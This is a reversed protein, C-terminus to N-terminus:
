QFLYLSGNCIHVSSLDTSSLCCCCTKAATPMTGLKWRTASYLTINKEYSAFIFLVIQLHIRDPLCGQRFVLTPFAMQVPMNLLFCREMTCTALLLYFRIIVTTTFTSAPYIGRLRCRLVSLWLSEFEKTM